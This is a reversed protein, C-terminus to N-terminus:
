TTMTNNGNNSTTDINTINPITDGVVAVADVVVVAVCYGGVDVVAVVCM